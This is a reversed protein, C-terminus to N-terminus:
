QAQRSCHLGRAFLIDSRIQGATIQHHRFIYPLHNTAIKISELYGNRNSVVEAIDCETDPDLETVRNDSEHFTSTLEKILEATNSEETMSTAVASGKQGHAPIPLNPMDLQVNQGLDVIKHGNGNGLAVGDLSHRPYTNSPMSASSARIGKAIECAIERTETSAEIRKLVSERLFRHFYTRHRPHIFAEIAPGGLLPSIEAKLPSFTHFASARGFLTFVWPKNALSPSFGHSPITSSRNGAILDNKLKPPSTQLCEFYKNITTHYLPDLDIGDHQKASASSDWARPPYQRTPIHWQILTVQQGKSPALLPRISVKPPMFHDSTLGYQAKGESSLEQGNGLSSRISTAQKLLPFPDASVSKTQYQYASSVVEAVGGSSTTTRERVGRPGSHSLISRPIGTGSIDNIPVPVRTSDSATETSHFISDKPDSEKPLDVSRGARAGARSLPSWLPRSLSFM